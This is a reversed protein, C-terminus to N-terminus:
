GSWALLAFLQGQGLCCGGCIHPINTVFRNVIVLLISSSVSGVLAGRCEAYHCDALRCEAYRFETYHFKAYLSIHSV